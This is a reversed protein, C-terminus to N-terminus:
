ADKSKESHFSVCSFCCFSYFHDAKIQQKGKTTTNEVLVTICRQIVDPKKWLCGQRREACM